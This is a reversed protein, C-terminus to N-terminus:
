STVLLLSTVCTVGLHLFSYWLVWDGWDYMPEESGNAKRPFNISYGEFQNYENTLNM